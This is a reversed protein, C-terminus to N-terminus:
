PALRKAMGVACCSRGAGVLRLCSRMRMCFQLESVAVGASYYLFVGASFCVLCVVLIGRM